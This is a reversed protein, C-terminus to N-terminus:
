QCLRKWAADGYVGAIAPDFPEFGIERLAASCEVSVNPWKGRLAVSGLASGSEHGSRQWSELDGGPFTKEGAGFRVFLNSRSDFQIKTWPGTFFATNSSIIVNHELVFSLHKEARTAHMVPGSSLAFINNAVYNTAGYHQHFAGGGNSNVCSCNWVLNSEIRWGTSGEDPYIGWGGYDHSRVDFIVNGTEASGTAIGLTYIGGMDSLMGQGIKHIRNWGILNRRALSPGYGWTWGVSVGTYFGDSIDNHTVRNDASQGIWVGVACPHVRGYSQIINNDVVNDGTRRAADERIEGEGIRVGGAGLDHFYCHEIRCEKCGQRLWIAYNGTHAIEINEFSLRTGGDVQVAAEIEAAAQVPPCGGEPMRWATYQFRVGRFHISAGNQTILLKELAPAIIEASEPKEGPLPLYSLEGSADRTWSGPETLMLPSNEIIFRTQDYWPNDKSLQHGDFSITTADPCISIPYWSTDWKHHIQIRTARLSEPDKPLMAVAAEPVKISFRERNNPLDEHGWGLMAADGQAPWRACQARHGNIYLQEFQLATKAHWVGKQDISIGHIRTGGSIVPKGSNEAEWTTNDDQPGLRLPETLLYEGGSLRVVAPQSGGKEARWRRLADRAFLLTNVGPAAKFVIATDYKQASAILPVLLALIFLDKLM